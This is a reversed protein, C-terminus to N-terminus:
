ATSTGTPIPTTGCASWYVSRSSRASRSALVNRAIGLNRQLFGYRRVGSLAERLVMYTWRDGLLDLVRQVADKGPLGTASIQCVGRKPRTPRQWFRTGLEYGEPTLPPEPQPIPQGNAALATM